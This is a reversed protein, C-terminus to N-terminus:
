SGMFQRVGYQSRLVRSGAGASLSQGVSGDMMKRLTVTVDGNANRSTSAEAQVGTQNIVNVVLGGPSRNDNAAAGASVGLRGDPGRRLPMIAEPGAEGALGTGGNAMPFITPGGFIGGYAFPTIRGFTFVNGLASPAIPGFL